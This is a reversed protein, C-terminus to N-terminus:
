YSQSWVGLRNVYMWCAAGDAPRLDTDISWYVIINNDGDRGSARRPANQLNNQLRLDAPVINDGVTKTQHNNTALVEAADTDLGAAGAAGFCLSFNRESNAATNDVDIPTSAGNDRIVTPNWVEEVCEDRQVQIQSIVQDIRSANSAGRQFVLQNQLISDCDTGAETSLAVGGVPEIVTESIVNPVIFSMGMVGLGVVVGIVGGKAQAMKGPDGQATLFNFGAFAFAIVSIGGGVILVLRAFGGFLAQLEEM